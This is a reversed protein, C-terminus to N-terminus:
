VNTAINLQSKLMMVENKLESNEGKIFHQETQEIQLKSKLESIQTQMLAKEQDRQMLVQEHFEAKGHMKDIEQGAREVEHKLRMNENRVRETEFERDQMQEQMNKIERDMNGAGAGSKRRVMDMDFELQEIQAQLEIERQRSGEAKQKLV